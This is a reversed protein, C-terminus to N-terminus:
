SQLFRFNQWNHFFMHFRFRGLALLQLRRRRRLLFQTGQRNGRGAFVEELTDGLPAELYAIGGVEIERGVVDGVLHRDHNREHRHGNADQREHRWDELEGANGDAQRQEADQGQIDLFVGRVFVALAALVCQGHQIRQLREVVLHFLFTRRRVERVIHRLQPLYLIFEDIGGAGALDEERGPVGVELEECLLIVVPDVFLEVEAEPTVFNGGGEFDEQDQSRHGQGDGGDDVPGDPGRPEPLGAARRYGTRTMRLAAFFRRKAGPDTTRSVFEKLNSRIIAFGCM